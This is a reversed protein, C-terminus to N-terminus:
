FSVLNKKCLHRSTSFRHNQGRFLDSGKQEMKEGFVSLENLLDRGQFVNTGIILWM